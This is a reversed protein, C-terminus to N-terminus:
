NANLVGIEEQTVVCFNVITVGSLHRITHFEEKITDCNECKELAKEKAKSVYEDAVDEFNSIIVNEELEFFTTKRMKFPLILNKSLDVDEFESEFMKFNNEEAFSYIKLGFLSIESSQSTRGTRKIEVFKEYHDVSAENYVDAEIKARAEVQRVQGSADVVYPNVLVDGEKVFDGVKVALTGSVLEIKTIKGNKKAVIPEFNGQMESPSVKEKINIILTQGRVVCSAFSVKEFNDLVAKEVLKTDIKHKNNSFNEKVFCVIENKSLNETGGVEFRWVFQSQIVFFLFFLVLACIMGVSSSLHELKSLLGFNKIQKIEVNQEKLFKEVKGCAFFSCKFSFDTKSIRCVDSLPTIKALGNLLKEQNLSHVFFQSQQRLIM